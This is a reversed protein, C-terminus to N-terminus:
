LNSNLLLRFEPLVPTQTKKLFILEFRIIAISNGREITNTTFFLM